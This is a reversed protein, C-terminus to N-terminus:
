LKAAADSDSESESDNTIKTNCQKRRTRQKQKKTGPSKTRKSPTTPASDSGDERYDSDDLLPLQKSKGKRKGTCNRPM